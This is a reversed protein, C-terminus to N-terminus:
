EGGWLEGSDGCRVFEVNGNARNPVGPDTDRMEEVQGFWHGEVSVRITQQIWGTQVACFVRVRDEGHSDSRDKADDEDEHTGRDNVAM